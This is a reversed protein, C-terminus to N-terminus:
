VQRKSLGPPAKPRSRRMKDPHGSAMAWALLHALPQKDRKKAEEPSM